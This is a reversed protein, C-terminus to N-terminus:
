QTNIKCQKTETANNLRTMINCQEATHYQQLTRSHTETATNQQTNRNCQEATHKQQLTRSHMETANNQQTNILLSSNSVCHRNDTQMCFTLNHCAQCSGLSWRGLSQVKGASVMLLTLYLSLVWWNGIKHDRIKLSTKCTLFTYQETITLTYQEIITLLIKPERVSLKYNVSMWQKCYQCGHEKNNLIAIFIDFDHYHLLSHASKRVHCDPNIRSAILSTNGPFLM